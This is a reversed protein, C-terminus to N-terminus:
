FRRHRRERGQIASPFLQKVDLLSIKTGFQEFVGRILSSNQQDNQLDDNRVEVTDGASDVALALQEDGRLAVIQKPSGTVSTSESGPLTALDLVTLMRGQIGVVGMVSEPARPLPAPERWDAVTAIESDLLAFEFSGRRFLRMLRGDSNSMDASDSHDNMLLKVLRCRRQM